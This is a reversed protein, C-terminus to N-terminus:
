HSKSPMSTVTQPSLSRMSCIASLRSEFATLNVPRSADAEGGAVFVPREQQGDFIRTDAHALFRRCADEVRELTRSGVRIGFTEAQPQGDRFPQDPQQAPLNGDGAFDALAAREAHREGQRQRVFRHLALCLRM